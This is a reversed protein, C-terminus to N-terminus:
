FAQVVIDPGDKKISCYQYDEQIYKIANGIMIKVGPYIKNKVNIVGETQNCVLQELEKYRIDTERFQTDIAQKTTLLKKLLQKKDQGMVDQKGMLFTVSQSIRELEQRQDNYKQKVQNFEEVVNCCVGMRVITSTAMYSGITNASMVRAAILEGGVILGKGKEARISLAAVHSHMIAEAIIEGSAEVNANQIFKAVVNGEAHIHGKDMGQIGYWIVINEGAIIEAGEVSGRIEVCGTAKVIYGNKVSGNILVNGKFDINGTGSDVDGEVIFVDSIAIHSGDYCIKGPKSAVLTVGDELLHTNKGKPITVDRGKIAAIVDGFINTGDIGETAPTKVVLVHGEEVNQIINLDKFDVTGDLNEKPKLENISDKDFTYTLYAAEGRQPVKGKAIIYKFGQQRHDYISQLVQEDIGYIIGKDRIAKEIDVNSLSEGDGRPGDFSVIGIMRDPTYEIIIREDSNGQVTISM